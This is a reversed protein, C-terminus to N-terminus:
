FTDLPLLKMLPMALMGAEPSLLYLQDNSGGFWTKAVSGTRGTVRMILVMMMGVFCLVCVLPYRGSNIHVGRESPMRLLM